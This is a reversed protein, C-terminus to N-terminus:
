CLPTGSNSYQKRSLNPREELVKGCKSSAEDNREGLAPVHGQTLFWCSWM